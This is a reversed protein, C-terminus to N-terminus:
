NFRISTISHKGDKNKLMINANLGKTKTQLSGAIYMTAGAERQSVVEFGKVGNEQFFADLTITAQNKGMNKIEEKGPLTLDIYNDLYNALQQANGTKLAGVIGSIDTQDMFALFGISLIGLLLIKKMVYINEKLAVLFIGFTPM